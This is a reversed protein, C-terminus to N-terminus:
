NHCKTKHLLAFAILIGKVNCRNFMINNGNANTIQAHEKWNVIVFFTCLLDMLKKRADGRSSCKKKLHFLSQFNFCGSKKHWLM